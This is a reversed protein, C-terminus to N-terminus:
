SRNEGVGLRKKIERLSLREVDQLKKILKVRKITDMNYLHYGSETKSVAEILSEKLYFRLTHISISTQKALEGVRYNKNEEFGEIIQFYQNFSKEISDIVFNIFSDLNGETHAIELANIYKNRDRKSIVTAPFGSQMLILNMLLRATRGNGDIFPHIHVLEFHAKIAMLVPHLKWKTHFDYLFQTMLVSVKMPNPFIHESGTIRIPVNRYNGANQTDIKELILYHIHKVDNHTVEYKKADLLKRLYDLADKHNIAELHENFSKGKITLGQELILATENRTLTNGEIANSNYTLEVDLWQHLQQLIDKSLPRLSSLREKQKDLLILKNKIDKSITM